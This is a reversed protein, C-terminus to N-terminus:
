KDIGLSARIVIQCEDYGRKYIKDVITQLTENKDFSMLGYKPHKWLPGTFQEFGIELLLTEM